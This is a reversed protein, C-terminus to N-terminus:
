SPIFQRFKARTVVLFAFSGLLIIGVWREPTLVRPAAPADPAGAPIQDALRSM